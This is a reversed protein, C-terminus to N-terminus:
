GGGAVQIARDASEYYRRFEDEESDINGLLEGAQVRCFQRTKGDEGGFYYDARSSQNLSMVTAIRERNWVRWKRLERQYGWNTRFQRRTPYNM